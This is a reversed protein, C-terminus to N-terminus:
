LYIYSVIFRDSVYRLIVALTTQMYFVAFNFPHFKDIFVEVYQGVKGYPLFPARITM